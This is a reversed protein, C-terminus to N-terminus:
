QVANIRDVMGPIWTKSYDSALYKAQVHNRFADLDPEYIKLGKSKFFDVLEEESKIQRDSINKATARGEELLKAQQEPSLADFAKKGVILLTFDVLHSTLVIQDTVEYFKRDLVAPLPNDQGDITGTQLGTYVEAFAMPSPSAGLAEGLFLWEPTGPM